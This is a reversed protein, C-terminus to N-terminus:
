SCVACASCRRRRYLLGALGSLLVALASPEPVSSVTPLATPYGPPLQAFDLTENDAGFTEGLSVGDGTGVALRDQLDPLAFDFTSLTTMPTM